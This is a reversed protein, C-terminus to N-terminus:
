SGRFLFQVGAADSEAAKNKQDIILARVDRAGFAVRGVENAPRAACLLHLVTQM